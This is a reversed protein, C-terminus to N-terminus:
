FSIRAYLRKEKYLFFGRSIFFCPNFHFERMSGKKKTFFFAEPFLSVPTLAHFERM